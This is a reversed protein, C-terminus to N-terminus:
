VRRMTSVALLFIALALAIVIVTFGAVLLDIQEAHNEEVVDILASLDQEDPADDDPPDDDDPPGSDDRPAGPGPEGPGPRYTDPLRLPMEPLDLGQCEFLGVVPDDSFANGYWNGDTRWVGAETSTAFANADGDAWITCFQGEPIDPHSVEIVDHDVWIVQYDDPM